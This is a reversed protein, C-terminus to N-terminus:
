YCSKFLKGIIRAIPQFKPTIGGSLIQLEYFEYREDKPTENDGSMFRKVFEKAKKRQYKVNEVLVGGKM